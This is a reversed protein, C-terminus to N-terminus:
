LCEVARTKVSQQISTDEKYWKGNMMMLIMKNREMRKRKSDYVLRHCQTVVKSDIPLSLLRM